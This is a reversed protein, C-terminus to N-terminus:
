QRELCLMQFIKILKPLNNKCFDCSDASICLILMKTSKYMCHKKTWRLHQLLCHRISTKLIYFPERCVKNVKRLFVNECMERKKLSEFNWCEHFFLDLITSHFCLDSSFWSKHLHPSSCTDLRNRLLNISLRLLWDPHLICHLTSLYIFLYIM